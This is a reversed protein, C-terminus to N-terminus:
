VKFIQDYYLTQPKIKKDTIVHLICKPNFM